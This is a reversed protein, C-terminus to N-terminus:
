MQLAYAIMLGVVCELANVCEHCQLTDIEKGLRIETSFNSSPHDSTMINLREPHRYTYIRRNLIFTMRDTSFFTCKLLM